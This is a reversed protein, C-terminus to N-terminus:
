PLKKWYVSSGALPRGENIPVMFGTIGTSRMYDHIAQRCNPLYFDDVIIYGGVVVKPFLNELAVITSEYMDGDLRLLAIKDIENKPLTDSFFGKVLKIQDSLLQCKDFNNKVEEYSIALEDRKWHPDNADQPYKEANPKPLGEFSDFGWINRDTVQYAKLIAAMFICSGGRWIGTEVFDGPINENIIIESLVKINNMNEIGVMSMSSEPYVQGTLTQKMFDLYLDRLYKEM